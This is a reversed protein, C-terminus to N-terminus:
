HTTVEQTGRVPSSPRCGLCTGQSPISGMVKQKVPRYEIWQAIGAPAIHHIINISKCINYWGQMRPIYEVQDHHIIKKIYQQIQNVLIKNVVTADINVLSIPRYNEKKTTDKDPKPILIISAEYFSNLLRRDEQIKQFLKLLIPTLEERLTKTFNEQSAM